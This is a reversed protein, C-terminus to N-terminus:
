MAVTEINFGVSWTGSTVHGGYGPHGGEWFWMLMLDCTGDGHSGVEWLRYLTEFSWLRWPSGVCRFGAVPTVHGATELIVREGSGIVPTM